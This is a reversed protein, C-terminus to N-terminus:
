RSRPRQSWGLVVRFEDPAPAASEQLVLFRGTPDVDFAIIPTSLTFLATAKGIAFPSLAIPAKMMTRGEVFFLASGNRAWVPNSGGEGSVTQTGGPKDFARVYVRSRGLTTSEYALWQSNPSIRGGTEDATSDLLARPASGPVVVELNRDDLGRSGVRPGSSILLRGDPAWDEPSFVRDGSELLTQPLASSDVPITAVVRRTETLARAITADFTIRGDPGWIPSTGDVDLDVPLGQTADVVRIRSRRGLGGGVSVIFRRGDGSIRPRSYLAPEVGLPTPRGAADVWSLQRTRQAVAPVYALNGGDDVDLLGIAIGLGFNVVAADPLIGVEPGTVTLRGLDFPVEFMAEGRAFVLTGPAVYRGDTGALGLLRHTGSGAETVALQGGQETHVSFIVHRGDPLARPLQHLVEGTGLTTLPVPTGGTAAVTALAGPRFALSTGLVITDNWLWAARSFRGKDTVPTPTGGAVPVRMVHQDTFFGIFRSDHSFFPAFGGETGEVRRVGASDLHRVYLVRARGDLTQAAYVIVRGDPSVAVGSGTTRHVPAEVPVPISFEVQAPVAAVAPRTGLWMWTVLSALTAFVIVVASRTMLARKSAHSRTPAIVATSSTSPNRQESAIWNLESALDRATQWRDDRDKALCRAIVRELPAPVDPVLSQAPAPQDKLIAGILSAQTKGTFARRGTVMEYLVAGFAFLDTRADADEGEIQEPAMYQFTGLITGQATIPAAPSTPVPGAALVTPAASSLSTAGGSKALGFDLLRAGTRTIMVNGPKLDRHVIGRRHAADLAGAIETGVKLADPLALPGRTLRAALSEGELYQMVLYATGEHEGVDYLACIHPHDLASISRAEREFRQRFESDAAVAPALIKVAVTRDLRTDRAKFVEGMGGAGLPAEIEYPGLRTGARLTM